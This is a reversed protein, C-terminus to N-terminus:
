ERGCERGEGRCVCHHEKEELSHCGGSARDLSNLREACALVATNVKSLDLDSTARGPGKHAKNATEVGFTM